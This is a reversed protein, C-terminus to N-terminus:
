DDDSDNLQHLALTMEGGTVSQLRLITLDQMVRVIFFLTSRYKLALCVNNMCSFLQHDIMM